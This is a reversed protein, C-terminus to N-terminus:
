MERIELTSGVSSNRLVDRLDVEAVAVCGQTPSFDSKALHLFIASGKGAVIPSSNYGLEVIINYISDERWLNEHSASFPTLILQNYSQHEPDDCWGHNHQIPISPFVSEPKKIRDSRWFVRLMPWVGIPSAGDGEIKDEARVCGAKGLVCRVDLNSGILRGDSSAIFQTVTQASM